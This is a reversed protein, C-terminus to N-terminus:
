GDLAANLVDSDYFPKDTLRAPLSELRRDDLLGEIVVYGDARLRELVVRADTSADIASM